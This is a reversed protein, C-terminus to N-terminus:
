LQLSVFVSNAQVRKIGDSGYTGAGANGPEIISRLLASNFRACDSLLMATRAHEKKLKQMLSRLLAKREAVEIRREDGLVSELRSLTVDGVPRRLGAAFEMRISERKSENMSYEQSEERIKELLRGLAAQDRKIVLSRLEDLRLLSARVHRIDEDLVVLLEDVKAEIGPMTSEM